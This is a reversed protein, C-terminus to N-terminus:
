RLFLENPGVIEAQIEEVELVVRAERRPTTNAQSYHSSGKQKFSKGSFFSIKCAIPQLKKGYECVLASTVKRDFHECVQCGYEGADQQNIHKIVLTNVGRHKEVSIRPDASVVLHGTALVEYGRQWVM